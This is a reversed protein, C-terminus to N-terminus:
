IIINFQNIIKELNTRSLIQQKITSIRSQMGSSVISKVYNKPVRQPEVLILTDAEYIKPLAFSLYLGVVMALCFPIIILWRHKLVVELYHDIQFQFTGSKEEM